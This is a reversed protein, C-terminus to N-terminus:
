NKEKHPRSLENKPVSNLKQAAKKYPNLSNGNSVSEASGALV